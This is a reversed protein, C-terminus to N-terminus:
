FQPDGSLNAQNCHRRSSLQRLGEKIVVPSFGSLKNMERPSLGLDLFIVLSDRVLKESILRSQSNKDSDHRVSVSPQKPTRYCYSQLEITMLDEM